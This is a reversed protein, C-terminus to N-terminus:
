KKFCKIAFANSSPSCPTPIVAKRSRVIRYLDSISMKQKLYHHYHFAGATNFTRLPYIKCSFALSDGPIFTTSDSYHLYFLQGSAKLLYNGKGLVEGCECQMYHEGRIDPHLFDQNASTWGGLFICIYLLLSLFNKSSKFFSILFTSVLGTSFISFPLYFYTGCGIGAM